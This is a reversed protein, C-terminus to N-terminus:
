MLSVESWIEDLNKIIRLVSEFERKLSFHSSTIFGAAQLRLWTEDKTNLVASVIQDPLLLLCNEQHKAYEDSGVCETMVVPTGVGMSELGPLYFGETLNPLLIALHANSLRVLYDDRHVKDILLDLELGECRLEDAIRKALVPNKLGGIFVQKDKKEPKQVLSVDIGNPIVYVPGNVHGTALIADAVPQSVCIRIARRSLFQHLPQAPDAHRVHQILNIIPIDTPLNEPVAQWDMGAIFLWSAEQPSWEALPAIRNTVWPNSDDLLSDPTFYIQTNCLGSRSLHNFYDWVKGHGGTYSLFQRRFFVNVLSSASKISVVSIM